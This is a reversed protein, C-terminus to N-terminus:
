RSVRVRRRAPFGTAVRRRFVVYSWAQYALVGPLIVLGAVTILHLAGDSAAAARLTVDGAPSLTSRLLVWSGEALHATFVAVVSGAVAATTAAFALVEARRWAAVAAVALVAAGAAVVAHGAPQHGRVVALGQTAGKQFAQVVGGRVVGPPAAGAPLAGAAGEREVAPAGTDAREEVVPRAAKLRTDAEPNRDTWARPPPLSDGATARELPLDQSARGAEIAGWWRDIQSRSARGTFEKVAALEQKSKPDALVAAVLARDPM